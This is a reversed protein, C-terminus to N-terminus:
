ERGFYREILNQDPKASTLSVGVVAVTSILTGWIFPDLGLLNYPGFKGAVLYGVFYLVLAVSGGVLMGAITGGATMRKWFLGLAVPALFSAGLGTSAFIILTQLFPPPNLMAIVALIGVLITTTYSLRKLTRDSAKPNISQQYIDRVVGSSVLLLFSDVSSMVAAFPAAFLLGALWPVGAGTTLHAAMTPMVRDAPLAEMGPLLVRASTFIVVLPFYILGFFVSVVIISRRLIRTDRFSMQRVMYSPQGAGSFNWFVFFSLALAVSLFGQPNTQHPGPASVYVGPRDHGYASIERKGEVEVAVFSENIQDAVQAEAGEDQTVFLIRVNDKETTTAEVLRALGGAETRLWTGKALPEDSGGRSQIVAQGFEPPTMKALQQTANSLGGVQYLALCLMIMVGILMVIGQMVDTWVVALYGGYSTYIVVAVAFFILCLLYDGDSEGIWWWGEITSEIGRVVKQYPEVDALLVAMINAGAQFQAMLFVFMFLIVMLTAITGVSSSDFRKRMLEPVTIAGALRSVQNIRKALLGLAVLPAVCYGAIWWALVWGHSYILAPFGMFSGGSAATAAYTLAFGWLGINRSGLFYESVFSKGAQARNALWALLFVIALYIAFSVIAADSAATAFITSM